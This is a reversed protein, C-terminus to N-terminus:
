IPILLVEVHGWIEVFVAGQPHIFLMWDQFACQYISPGQVCRIYFCVIAPGVQHRRSPSTRDHKNALMQGGNVTSPFLM